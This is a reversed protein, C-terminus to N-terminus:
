TGSWRSLFCADEHDILRAKELFPLLGCPDRWLVAARSAASRIALDANEEQIGAGFPRCEDVSLRIQRFLPGLEAICGAVAGQMEGGRWWSTVDEQTNRM